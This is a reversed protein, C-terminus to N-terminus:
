LQVGCKCLAIEFYSLTVKIILKNFSIGSESEPPPLINQTFTGNFLLLNDQNTSHSYIFSYNGDQQEQSFKCFVM